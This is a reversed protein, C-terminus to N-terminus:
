AAPPYDAEDKYHMMAVTGAGDNVTVLLRVHVPNAPREANVRFLMAHVPRGPTDEPIAMEPINARMFGLPDNNAFRGLETDSKFHVLFTRLPSQCRGPRAGDPADPMPLPTWAFDDHPVRWRAELTEDAVETAGAAFLTSEMTSM